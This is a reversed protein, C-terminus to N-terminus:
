DQLPDHSPFNNDVYVFETLYSEGWIEERKYLSSNVRTPYLAIVVLEYGSIDTVSM